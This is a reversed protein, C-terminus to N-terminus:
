ATQAGSELLLEAALRQEEDVGGEGEAKRQPSWCAPLTSRLVTAPFPHRARRLPCCCARLNTLASVVSCPSLHQRCHTCRLRIPKSPPTAPRGTPIRWGM